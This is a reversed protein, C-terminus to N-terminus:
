KLAELTQKALKKVAALNTTNLEDRSNVDACSILALAGTVSRLKARLEEIERRLANPDDEGYDCHTDIM